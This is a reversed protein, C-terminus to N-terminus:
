TTTKKIKKTKKIKDVYVLWFVFPRDPHQEFLLEDHGRKDPAKDSSAIKVVESAEKYDVEKIIYKKNKYKIEKGIEPRTKDTEPNFKFATFTTM